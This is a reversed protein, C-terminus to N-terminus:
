TQPQRVFEPRPAKRKNNKTSESAETSLTAEVGRSPLNFHITERQTVVRLTSSTSKDSRYKGSASKM